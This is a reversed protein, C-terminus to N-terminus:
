LSMDLTPPLGLKAYADIGVRALRAYLWFFGVCLVIWVLITVVDRRPARPKAHDRYLAVFAAFMAAEVGPLVIVALELFGAGAALFPSLVIYVALAAVVATLRPNGAILPGPHIPITSM